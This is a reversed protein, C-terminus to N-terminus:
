SWFGQAATGVHEGERGGERFLEQGSTLLLHAAPGGSCGGGPVRERAKPASPRAHSDTVSLTKGKCALAPRYIGLGPWGCTRHRFGRVGDM